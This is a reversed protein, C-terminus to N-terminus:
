KDTLGGEELASEGWYHFPRGSSVRKIHCPARSYASVRSRAKLHLKMLKSMVIAM